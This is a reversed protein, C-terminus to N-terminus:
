TSFEATWGRVDGCWNTWFWMMSTYAGASDLTADLRSEGPNGEINTALVNGRHLAAGVAGAVRCRPAGARLQVTVYVVAAGGAGEENAEVTVEGTRCAPVKPAAAAVH